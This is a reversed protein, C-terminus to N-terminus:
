IEPDLDLSFVNGSVGEQEKGTVEQGERLWPYVSDRNWVAYRLHFWLIYVGIDPKKWEVNHKHFESMSNQTTPSWESEISFLSHKVIRSNFM